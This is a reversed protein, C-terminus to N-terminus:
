EDSDRRKLLILFLFIGVVAAVMGFLFYVLAATRASLLEGTDAVSIQNASEITSIGAQGLFILGAALLVIALFFGWPKYNEKKM